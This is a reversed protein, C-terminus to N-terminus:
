GGHPEKSPVQQGEHDVAAEQPVADDRGLVPQEPSRSGGGQWWKPSIYHPRKAQQRSYGSSIWLM